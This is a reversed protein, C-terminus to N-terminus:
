DAFLFKVLDFFIHNKDFCILISSVIDLSMKPNNKKFEDCAITKVVKGKNEYIFDSAIEFLDKQDTLHASIVIETANEM